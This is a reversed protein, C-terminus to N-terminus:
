VCSLYVTLFTLQVNFRIFLRACEEESIVSSFVTAHKFNSQKWILLTQALVTAHSMLWLPQFLLAHHWTERAILMEHASLLDVHGWPWSHRILTKVTGRAQRLWVQTVFYWCIIKKIRSQSLFTPWTIDSTLIDLILLNVYNYLDYSRRKLWNTFDSNPETSQAGSRCHSFTWTQM